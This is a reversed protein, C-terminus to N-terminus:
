TNDCDSPQQKLLRPSQVVKEPPIHSIGLVAPTDAGYAFSFMEFPTKGNLSKRKVSNIHSFIM